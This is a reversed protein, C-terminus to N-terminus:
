IKLNKKLLFTHIHFVFAVKSGEVKLEPIVFTDKSNRFKSNKIFFFHLKLKKANKFVYLMGCAHVSMRGLDLDM